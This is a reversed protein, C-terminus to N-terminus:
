LAQITPLCSVISDFSSGCEADFQVFFPTTEIPRRL